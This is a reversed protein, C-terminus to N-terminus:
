LLNVLSILINVLPKYSRIGSHGGRAGQNSSLRTSPSFKRPKKMHVLRFAGRTLVIILGSTPMISKRADSLRVMIFSCDKWAPCVLRWCMASYFFFLSMSAEVFLLNHFTSNASWHVCVCVCHTTHLGLECTCDHDSAPTTLFYPAPSLSM